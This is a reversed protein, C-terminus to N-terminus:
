WQYLARKIILEHVSFAGGEALPHPKRTVVYDFSSEATDAVAVMSGVVASDVETSAEAEM